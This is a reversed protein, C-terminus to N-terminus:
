DLVSRIKQSLEFKRFPKSLLEVGDDLKGHHVIANETYGSIYLIRKQPYMAAVKRGLEAGSMGGPLIVDIMLLDAREILEVESLASRANAFAHAEYGLSELQLKTTERLHPDDEILVVVETGKAFVVEVPTERLPEPAKDTRPFYVKVTTGHGIESYINIHGCSQKVFGFVMSLGLGSGVGSKKTTYFPELVRNIEDRAIGIGNDTIGIVVYSGPDLEQHQTVYVSDLEVNATEITLKGGDPMADRANLALNIIANELQASDAECQWLAAAPIVEIDIIEGLIRKLFEGMKELMENVDISAPKLAQKRSFALLRHTLEAGRSSAHIIAELSSNKYENNESLIEANGLIIALINNFDHAIGGTLQGIAQLKQAHRLMDELKTQEKQLEYVDDLLVKRIQAAILFDLTSDSSAFDGFRYKLDKADQGAEPSHSVLFNYHHDVLILSGRLKLMSDQKHFLAVDLCTESIEDIAHINEPKSFEFHHSFAEGSIKKGVHRLLSSGCSSITGDRTVRIYAPYLHDLEELSLKISM